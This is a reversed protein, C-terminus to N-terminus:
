SVAKINKKKLSFKHRQMKLQFRYCIPAFIYIYLYTYVQVQPTWQFGEFILLYM